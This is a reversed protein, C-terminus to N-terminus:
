RSRRCCCYCCCGYCCCYCWYLPKATHPETRFVSRQVASPYLSRLEIEFWISYNWFVTFGRLYTGRRFYTGRWKKCFNATPRLAGFTCLGGFILVGIDQFNTWLQQFMCLLANDVSFLISCVEEKCSKQRRRIMGGFTLVAGFILVQVMALGSIIYTSILPTKRYKTVGCKRLNPIESGEYACFKRVAVSRWHSHFPWMANTRMFSEYPLWRM